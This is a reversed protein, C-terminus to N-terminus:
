ASCHRLVLLAVRFLYFLSLVVLFVEVSPRRTEEEIKNHIKFQRRFVCDTIQLFFMRVDAYTQCVMGSTINLWPDM